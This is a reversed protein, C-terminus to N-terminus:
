PGFPSEGPMGPAVHPAAVTPAAVPATPAAVPATTAIPSAPPKPDETDNKSPRRSRPGYLSPTIEEVDDEDWRLFAVVRQLEDYARVLLTLARRRHDAAASTAVPARELDSVAHWLAAAVREARAIKEETVHSRGELAAWSERAVRALVVLDLAVPRYGSLLRVEALRREEVYGRAAAAKLDGHLDARLAGGEEALETIARVDRAESDVVAQAYLLADSREPITRILPVDCKLMRAAAGELLPAANAYGGAAITAARTAELNPAVLDDDTLAARAAATNANAIQLPSTQTLKDETTTQM